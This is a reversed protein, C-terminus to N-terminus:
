LTIELVTGAPLIEIANLTADTFNSIGSWGGSTKQEVPDFHILYEDSAKMVIRGVYSPVTWAKIIGVQGREMEAPSVYKPSTWNKIKIM